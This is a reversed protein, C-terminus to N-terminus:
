SILNCASDDKLNIWEKCKNYLSTKFIIIENKFDNLFQCQAFDAHWFIDFKIENKLLKEENSKPRRQSIKINLYTNM